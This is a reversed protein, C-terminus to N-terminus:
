RNYLYILRVKTDIKVMIIRKIIFFESRKLSTDVFCKMDGVVQDTAQAVAHAFYKM